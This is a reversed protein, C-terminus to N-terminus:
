NFIHAKFSTAIELADFTLVIQGTTVVISSFGIPIGSANENYIDITSTTAINANTITCTTDGIACAVPSTWYTPETYNEWKQTTSNYRLLQGNSPSSINVDSNINMTPTVNEWKQTTSNYKLMQGDAPSSIDVDTNISITPTANEWKQSTSNYTLIQGSAASSIDVDTNYNLNLSGNVWEYTTTNYTLVQKNSPSSVSVDYIDNLTSAAGTKVVKGRDVLCVDTITAAM